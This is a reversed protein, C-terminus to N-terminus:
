HAPPAAPPPPPPPPPPAAGGPPAVVEPRAPGPSTVESRPPGPAAVEPRAPGPAAPAAPEAALCADVASKTFGKCADADKLAAKALEKERPSGSKAIQKLGKGYAKGAQVDERCQKAMEEHRPGPVDCASEDLTVLARCQAELLTKLQPAETACKAADLDKDARCIAEFDANLVCQKPDGARFAKRLTECVPAMLANQKCEEFKRDDFMFSKGNPYSRLEHFAARDRRCNDANEQDLRACPEDSDALVAMCTVLDANATRTATGQATDKSPLDSADGKGALARALAECEPRSAKKAPSPSAAPKGPAAAAPAAAPKAEAAPAGAGAPQAHVPVGPLVWSAVAVALVLTRGFSSRDHHVM